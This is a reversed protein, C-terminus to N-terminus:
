RGRHVLCTPCAGVFEHATGEVDPMLSIQVRLLARGCRPCAIANEDTDALLDESNKRAGYRVCAGFADCVEWVNDDTPEVGLQRLLLTAAERSSPDHLPVRKIVRSM